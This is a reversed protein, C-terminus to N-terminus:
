TQTAKVEVGPLVAGSADRVNGTIQATSQAWVTACTSTAGIILVLLAPLIRKMLGGNGSGLYRIPKWGDSRQGIPITKNSVLRYLVLFDNLEQTTAVKFQPVSPSNWTG